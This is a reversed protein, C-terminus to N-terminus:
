EEFCEHSSACAAGRASGEQLEGCRGLVAFVGLCFLIELERNDLCCHSVQLGRAGAAPSVSESPAKQEEPVSVPKEQKM